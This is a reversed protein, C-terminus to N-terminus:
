TLELDIRQVLHHFLVACPHHDRRHRLHEEDAGLDVILRAQHFAPNLNRLGLTTSAQPQPSDTLNRSAGAAQSGRPQRIGDAAGSGAKPAIAQPPAPCALCHAVRLIPFQLMFFSAAPLQFIFPV